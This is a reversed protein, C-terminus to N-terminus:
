LRQIDGTYALTFGFAKLFAEATITDKVESLFEMGFHDGLLLLMQIGGIYESRKAIIRQLEVSDESDCGSFLIDYDRQMDMLDRLMM